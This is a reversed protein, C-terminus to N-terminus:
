MYRNPPYSILTTVPLFKIQSYPIESSVCMKGSLCKVCVGKGFWEGLRSSINRMTYREVRADQAFLVTMLVLSHRLRPEGGRVRESTSLQKYVVLAGYLLADSDETIVGDVVQSITVTACM